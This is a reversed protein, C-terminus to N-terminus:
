TFLWTHCSLHRGTSVTYFHAGNNREQIDVSTWHVRLVLLTAGFELSQNLLRYTIQDRNTKRDSSDGCTLGDYLVNCVGYIAAPLGDTHDALVVQLALPAGMLDLHGPPPAEAREEFGVADGARIECGGM